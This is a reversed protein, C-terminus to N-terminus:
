SRKFKELRVKRILEPNESPLIRKKVSMIVNITQDIGFLIVDAAAGALTAGAFGGLGAAFTEIRQSTVSLLAEGVFWNLTNNQIPLFTEASLVGIQRALPRSYDGALNQALVSGIFCGTAQAVGKFSTRSITGLSPLQLWSSKTQVTISNLNKTIAM